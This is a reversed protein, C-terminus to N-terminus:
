TRHGVIPELRRLSVSSTSARMLGNRVGSAV